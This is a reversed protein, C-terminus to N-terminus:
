FIASITSCTILMCLDISMLSLPPTCQHPYPSKDSIFTYARQEYDLPPVNLVHLYM